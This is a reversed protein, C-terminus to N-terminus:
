YYDLTPKGAKFYHLKRAFQGFLEYFTSPDEEDTGCEHKCLIWMIHISPIGSDLHEYKQKRIYSSPLNGVKLTTYNIPLIDPFNVFFLHMGDLQGEGM